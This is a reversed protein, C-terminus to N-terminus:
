NFNLKARTVKLVGDIGELQSMVTQLQEAADVLVEVQCLAKGDEQTQVGLSNINIGLASISQTLSALMGVKDLCHVRFKIPRARMEGEGWSVEILRQSDFSMSQPCGRKHITVGRGRTVYGVVDDGPLPDCCRAFHSVVDNLGQVTVKSERAKSAKEPKSEIAPDAVTQEVPENLEPLLRRVVLQTSLKGYGIEAFLIDEEPYGLDKAVELVTGEKFLKGLSKKHRRLEKSLLERGVKVSELREQAKLWSRIRQKAKTSTVFRLWDKSPRQAESTVIEVTDGNRLRYALPVQKGNVRAGQCHYGIESHVHFAFDIPTAGRSLAALDGRPSFVFVEEPFLEGRVGSIFEHPDSVNMGSEVLDQLWTLNMAEAQSSVETQRGPKKKKKSDKYAWHAAIGREAIEHMEPTRIQIEIRKAQPGIVTTHLSQYNNRKPMAIYDKFRGPVPKWGAHIVGVAAYCDRTTPVIIRFAILDFIEDFSIKQQEMKFYISYFHKSRGKVEGEIENESLEQQLLGVVEDIYHDREVKSDSIKQKLNEYVAPKLHKLSLDELDSKIWHIGLRHALPAYIDLTEKAIRKQRSESVYDLTRMNHLRDCLKILLVRIDKSMALLMKRFNEAQAIERSSFKVQSLKTVGDVLAAVDAGFKEEIAPLGLNTDEVTDHLLAATISAPDLRLQATLLAVSQVHTLYPEGSARTQGEHSSRAVDHARHILELDANPAYSVIESLIKQLLM